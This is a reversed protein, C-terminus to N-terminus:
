QYRRTAVALGVFYSIPLLVWVHRLSADEPPLPVALEVLALAMLAAMALPFAIAMAELQIRRGLEDQARQLAIFGRLFALFPLLPVLAVAVRAAPALGPARELVLRMGLYALVWLAGAALLWPSAPRPTPDAASPLPPVTPPM